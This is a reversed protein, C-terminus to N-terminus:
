TDASISLFRNFCGQWDATAEALYRSGADTITYVKKGPGGDGEAWHATCLEDSELQNLAPYLRAGKVRTFGREELRASLAYGHAPEVQMQALLLLPLLARELAATSDKM